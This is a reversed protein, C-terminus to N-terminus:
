GSITSVVGVTCLLTFRGRSTRWTPAVMATAARDQHNTSSGIRRPARPRNQACARDPPDCRFATGRHGQSAKTPANLTRASALAPRAPVPWAAPTILMPASPLPNAGGESFAGASSILSEVSWADAAGGVVAGAGAVEDGLPADAVPVEQLATAYMPSEVDAPMTM